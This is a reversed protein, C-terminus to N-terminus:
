GSSNERLVPIQRKRMVARFIRSYFTRILGKAARLARVWTDCCLRKRVRPARHFCTATATRGDILADSWRAPGQGTTVGPSWGPAPHAGARRLLLATCLPLVLWPVRAASGGSPLEAGGPEGRRLFM